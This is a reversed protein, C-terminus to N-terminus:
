RAKATRRSLTKEVIQSVGMGCVLAGVYALLLAALPLGKMFQKLMATFFATYWSVFSVAGLAFALRRLRHSRESHFNIKLLHPAVIVHLLMGNISLVIVATMKLMFPASANYTETNPLYLAAGTVLIGLLASLVTDKMLHLVEQEKSSIRGDRLFRFFLLDGITASGLGLVTALIHLTLVLPQWFTLVSLAYAYM